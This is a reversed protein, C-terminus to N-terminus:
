VFFHPTLLHHVLENRLSFVRNIKPPYPCHISAPENEVIDNLNLSTKQNLIFCTLTTRDTTYYQVLRHRGVFGVFSAAEPV